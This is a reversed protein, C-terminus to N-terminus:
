NDSKKSQRKEFLNKEIKGSVLQAISIAFTLPLSFGLLELNIGSESDSITFFVFVFGLLSCIITFICTSTFSEYLNNDGSKKIEGILSSQYIIIVVCFFSIVFSLLIGIADGSSLQFM